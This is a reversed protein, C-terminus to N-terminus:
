MERPNELLRTIAILLKSDRLTSLLLTMRTIEMLSPSTAPNLAVAAKPDTIAERPSAKIETLNNVETAKMLSDTNARAKRTAMAKHNMTAKLTAMPNAVTNARAVVMPNDVATSIRVVATSARAAETRSTVVMNVKAETVLNDMLSSAKDEMALNDTLSNARDEMLSLSLNIRSRMMM